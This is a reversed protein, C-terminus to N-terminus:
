GGGTLRMVLQVITWCGIVACANWALRLTRRVGAPLHLGRRRRPERRSRKVNVTRRTSYHRM